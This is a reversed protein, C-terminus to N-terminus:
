MMMIDIIDLISEDNNVYNEKCWFHFLLTCNMKIRQISSCRDEFCMDNREELSDVLHLSPDLEVLEQRVNDGLIHWCRLLEVTFKPM